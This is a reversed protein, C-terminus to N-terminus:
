GDKGKHLAIYLFRYCGKCQLLKKSELDAMDRETVMQFCIGCSRDDLSAVPNPVANYMRSYRELWQEPVGQKKEIREGAHSKLLAEIEETKQQKASIQEQLTKKQTEFEKDHLQSNKKAAELHNWAAVLADEQAMQEKQIEEIEKKLAIYEKNSTASSFRTQAEKAKVDLVKMGLEQMDVDKQLFHLSSKERSAKEEIREMQDQLLVVEEEFQIIQKELAHLSQDFM